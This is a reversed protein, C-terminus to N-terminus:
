LNSMKAIRGRLNHDKQFKETRLNVKLTKLSLMAEESGESVDGKKPKKANNKNM